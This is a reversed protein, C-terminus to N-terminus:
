GCSLKDMWIKVEKISMDDFQKWINIRREKPLENLRDYVRRRWQLETSKVVLDYIMERPDTPLDADLPLVVNQKNETM